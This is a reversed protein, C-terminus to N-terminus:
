AASCGPCAPDKAIRLTRLGPALGDLVHLRGFQPEGMGGIGALLMRV